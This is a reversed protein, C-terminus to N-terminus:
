HLIRYQLLFTTKHPIGHQELLSSIEEYHKTPVQLIGKSLIKGGLKPLIGRGEVRGRLAYYLTKQKTLSINSLSYTVLAIAEFGFREALYDKHILSYGEALIAERGLFGPNLLDKIDIVKIDLTKNTYATKSKLEQSLQWKIRVPAKKHLIIALDLDQSSTKGRIYSGYAVIDWVGNKKIWRSDLKKPLNELM